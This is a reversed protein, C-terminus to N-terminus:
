FDIEIRATIMSFDDGGEGTPIDVDFPNSYLNGAIDEYIYLKGKGNAFRDHDVYSYNLMLKVNNNIHYNVGFTMSNAAGGYVKADFDNANMYDFRVALEIDGWKQGRNVQTFEGEQNNYVYSGGFLLWGAQAYAGGISVDAAGNLRKISNAMYEGQFMFQNWSAALEAGYLLESEVDMIDDTDVYKKRNISTLTRTSFRYSNPVELSTKPTRYSVAAGIHVVKGKEQIPTYVFRGTFSYGDDTGFDKNADKAFANEELEGITRFHIGGIALFHKGWYNAQFGLHRSPAMKSVLSREIFTVYRSTTTTEMSFGEKFHGAKINWNDQQYKIIMDKIEMEAGAFDLDIEGYWNESIQAKMAFRARRIDVGNGIPNMTETPFFAGDFYVRSDFWYKVSQDDSQFVLIGNQSETLLPIRKVVKGYQNTRSDETKDTQAFMTNAIFLFAIALIATYYNQKLM